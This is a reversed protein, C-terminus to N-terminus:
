QGGVTIFSLTASDVGDLAALQDRSACETGNPVAVSASLPVTSSSLHRVRFFAAEVISKAQAESGVSDRFRVSVEGRRYDLSGGQPICDQTGCSCCIVFGLVLSRM